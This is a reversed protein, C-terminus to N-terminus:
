SKLVGRELDSGVFELISSGGGEVRCCGYGERDLATEELDGWPGEGSRGGIAEQRGGQSGEPRM